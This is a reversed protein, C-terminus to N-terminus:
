LNMMKKKEVYRERRSKASVMVRLDEQPADAVHDSQVAPVIEQEGSFCFM